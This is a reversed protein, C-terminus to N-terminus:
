PRGEPLAPGPGGPSQWCIEGAIVTLQCANPRFLYLWDNVDAADILAFDAAKGPELSGV